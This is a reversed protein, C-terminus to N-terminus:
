KEEELGTLAADAGRIRRHAGFVRVLCANGPERGESQDKAGEPSKPVGPAGGSRDFGQLPPMDCRLTHVRTGGDVVPVRLGQLPSMLGGTSVEFYVFDARYVAVKRGRADLVPFNVQLALGEIEGRKERDRLELYRACELTSDFLHGDCRVRRAKFKNARKM